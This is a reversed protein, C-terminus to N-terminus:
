ERTSLGHRWRDGFAGLGHDATCQAVSAPTEGAPDVSVAVFEGDKMGGGLRHGVEALKGASAPCVDPWNRYEYPSCRRQGRPGALTVSAGDGTALSCQPAANGVASAGSGSVPAPM